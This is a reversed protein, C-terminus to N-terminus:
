GNTVELVNWPIAVFVGNSLERVPYCVSEVSIPLVGSGKLNRATWVMNGAIPTGISWKSWRAMLHIVDALRRPEPVACRSKVSNAWAILGDASDLITDVAKYMLDLEQTEPMYIATAQGLGVATGLELHASNGCPAVLVTADADLVADWDVNFAADAQPSKFGHEKWGAVGRFDYVTHGAERLAYVVSPQHSNRFSSAVYIKM